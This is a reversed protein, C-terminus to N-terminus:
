EGANWPAEKIDMSEIMEIQDHNITLSRGEATSNNTMWRMSIAWSKDEYMQGHILTEGKMHVCVFPYEKETRM